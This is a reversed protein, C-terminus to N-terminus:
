TKKKKRKEKKREKKKRKKEKKKRIEPLIPFFKEMSKTTELFSFFQLPFTETEKNLPM